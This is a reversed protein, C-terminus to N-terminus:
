VRLRYSLPFAKVNWLTDILDGLVTRVVLLVLSKVNWLTDILDLIRNKSNFVIKDKCEVIYRNFRIGRM